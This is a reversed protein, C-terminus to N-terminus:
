HKGRAVLKGPFFSARLDLYERSQQGSWLGDAEGSHSQEWFSMQLALERETSHIFAKWESSCNVTV